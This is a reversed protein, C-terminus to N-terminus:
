PGAGADIPEALAVQSMARLQQLAVPRKGPAVQVIYAGSATPGDVLRGGAQGLAARLERETADPAFLVIVNGTARTQDAGLLRYTPSSEHHAQPLMFFLAVAAAAAAQGALAWGLPIRRAIFRRRVPARLRTRMATGAVQPPQRLELGLPMGAFEARLAGEAALDARCEACEALHADFLAAEAEDLTGNVRWPLLM